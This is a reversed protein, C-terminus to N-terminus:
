WDGSDLGLQSYVENPVRIDIKTRFEYDKLQKRLLMAFIKAFELSTRTVAQTKIKMADAQDKPHPNGLTFSINVGFLTVTVLAGDFYFESYDNTDSDSMTKEERLENVEQPINYLLHVIM